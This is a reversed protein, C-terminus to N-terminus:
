LRKRLSFTVLSYDRGRRGGNENQVAGHKAEHFCLRKGVLPVEREQRLKRRRAIM